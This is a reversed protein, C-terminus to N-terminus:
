GRFYLYVCIILVVVLASAFVDRWDWSSRLEARHQDTVTAFTLGELKAEVPAATAYSVSLMVAVSVVFVLSNYRGSYRHVRSHNDAM